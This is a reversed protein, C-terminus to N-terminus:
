PDPGHCEEVCIETRGNCNGMNDRLKLITLSVVQCDDKYVIGTLGDLVFKALNDIDPVIPVVQPATTKLNMPSRVGGKFDSNPRKLYCKINMSVTTTASFFLKANPPLQKRAEEQFMKMEKKKTNHFGGRHFRSRPLAQPKGHMTLTVKSHAEETLDVFNGQNM